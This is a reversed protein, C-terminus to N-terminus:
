IYFKSHRLGLKLDQSYVNESTVQCGYMSDVYFLRWHELFLVAFATFGIEFGAFLRKQGYRTLCMWDVCFLKWYELILVAFAM